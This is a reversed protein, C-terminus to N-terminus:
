RAHMMLREVAVAAVESGARCDRCSMVRESVMTVVSWVLLM